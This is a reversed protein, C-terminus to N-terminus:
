NRTTLSFGRRSRCHLPRRLRNRSPRLRADPEKPAIRINSCAGTV